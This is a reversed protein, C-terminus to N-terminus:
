SASRLELLADRMKEAVDEAAIIRNENTREMDRRSAIMYARHDSHQDVRDRSRRERSKPYWRAVVDGTYKTGEILTVKASGNPSHQMAEILAGVLREFSFRSTFFQFDNSTVCITYTEMTM